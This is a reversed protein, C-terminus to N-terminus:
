EGESDRESDREQKCHCQERTNQSIAIGTALQKQKNGQLCSPLVKEMCKCCERKERNKQAQRWKPKINFTPCSKYSGWV